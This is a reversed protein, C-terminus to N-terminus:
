WLDIWKVWGWSQINLGKCMSSTLSVSHHGYKGFERLKFNVVKFSKSFNSIGSGWEHISWSLYIMIFSFHLLNKSNRDLTLKQYQYITSLSFSKYICKLSIICDMEKLYLYKQMSSIFKTPINIFLSKFISRM